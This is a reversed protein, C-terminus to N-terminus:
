LQRRIALELNRSLRRDKGYIQARAQYDEADTNEVFVDTTASSGSRLSLTMVTGGAEERTAELRSGSFALARDTAAVVEDPTARFYTWDIDPSGYAESMSAAGACGSATLLLAFVALRLM